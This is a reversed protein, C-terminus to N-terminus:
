QNFTLLIVAADCKIREWTSEIVVSDCSSRQGLSQDTLADSKHPWYLENKNHKSLTGYRMDNPCSNDITLEMAVAICHITQM